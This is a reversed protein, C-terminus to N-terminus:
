QPSTNTITMQCGSLECCMRVLVSEQDVNRASFMHRRGSECPESPEDSSEIDAFGEEWLVREAGGEGTRAIWGSLIILLFFVVLSGVTGFGMNLRIQM